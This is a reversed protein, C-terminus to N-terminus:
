TFVFLILSFSSVGQFPILLVKNKQITNTNTNINTNTNPNIQSPLLLLSSGVAIEERWVRLTVPVGRGQGCDGRHGNSCGLPHIPNIGDSERAM